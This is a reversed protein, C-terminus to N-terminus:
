LRLLSSQPLPVNTLWLLFPFQFATLALLLYNTLNLNLGYSQAEQFIIRKM